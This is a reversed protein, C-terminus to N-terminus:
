DEQFAKRTSPLVAAVATTLTVVGVAAAGVSQATDGAQLLSFASVTHLLASGVILGQVWSIRRAGLWALACVLAGYIALSAGVGASFSGQGVAFSGVGMGIFALGALATLSVSVGLAFPDFLRRLAYVGPVRGLGARIPLDSFIGHRSGADSAGGM